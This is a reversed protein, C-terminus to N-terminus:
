QTQGARKARETAHRVDRARRAYTRGCMVNNSNNYRIPRASARGTSLVLGLKQV